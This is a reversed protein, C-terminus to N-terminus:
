VTNVVEAFSGGDRLHDWLLAGVQEKGEPTQPFVHSWKGSSDEKKLGCWLHVEIATLSRLIEDRPFNTYGMGLEFEMKKFDPYTYRLHYVEGALTVPIAADSM